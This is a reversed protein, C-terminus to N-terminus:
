HSFVIIPYKIIDEIIVKWNINNALIQVGRGNANSITGVLVFNGSIVKIQKWIGNRNGRSVRNTHQGGRIVVWINKYQIRIIRVSFM